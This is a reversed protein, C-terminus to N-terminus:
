DRRSRLVAPTRSATATSVYGVEFPEAPGQSAQRIVWQMADFNAYLPALAAEVVSIKESSIQGNSDIAGEGIPGLYIGGRLFRNNVITLTRADIKLQASRPINGEAGSSAQVTWSDVVGLNVLEGTTSEYAPVDPRMQTVVSPALTNGMAEYFDRLLGAFQAFGGGTEGGGWWTNVGPGGLFNSIEVQFKYVIM